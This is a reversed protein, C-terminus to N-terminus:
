EHLYSLIIVIHCDHGHLALPLSIWQSPSRLVLDLLTHEYTWYTIIQLPKFEISNQCIFSNYSFVGLHIRSLLRISVYDDLEIVYSMYYKDWEIYHSDNLETLASLVGQCAYVSLM